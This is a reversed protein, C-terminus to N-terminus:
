EARKSKKTRLKMLLFVLGYGSVVFAVVIGADRWGDGKRELNLTALYDAGTRYQCVECGSMADPNLLNTRAGMGQLYPTLYEACTQTSPPNFIALESTKCTVTIDWTTFVLLSGILYNFPNLYYLRDNDADADGGVVLSLGLSV